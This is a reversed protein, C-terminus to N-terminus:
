WQQPELERIVDIGESHIRAEVYIKSRPGMRDRLENTFKIFTQYEHSQDYVLAPADDVTSDLPRQIKLVKVSM